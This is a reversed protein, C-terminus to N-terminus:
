MTTLYLRIILQGTNYCCITRVLSVIDMFDIVDM